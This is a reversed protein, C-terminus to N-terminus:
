PNPSDAIEATEAPAVTVAECRFVSNVAIPVTAPCVPSENVDVAATDDPSAMAILDANAIISYFFILIFFIYFKKM